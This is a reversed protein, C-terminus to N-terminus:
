ECKVHICCEMCMACHMVYLIFAARCESYFVVNITIYDLMFIYYYRPVNYLIIYCAMICDLIMYHLAVHMDNCQICTVQIICAIDYGTLYCVHFVFWCLACVINYLVTWYLIYYSFVMMYCISYM